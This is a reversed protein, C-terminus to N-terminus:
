SAPTPRASSSPALAPLNTGTITVTTGGGLPGANPALGAVTPTGAYTYHDNGNIASTGGATTVTVDVTGASGAPNTAVIQTATNNTITATNNGFRVATASGLNTGTITVSISGATPGAIPSVSTM